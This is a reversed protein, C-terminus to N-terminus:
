VAVGCPPMFSEHGVLLNQLQAPLIMSPLELPIEDKAGYGWAAHIFSLGNQHAADYDGARDGVYCTSSKELMCDNLLQNIVQSKKKFEVSPYDITYTREFLGDWKLNSIIKKTPYLRKNTVIFINKNALKLDILLQQIGFYPKALNCVGGDYEFKFQEVLNDLKEDDLEKTLGKLADRLPPGILSREFKLATGYGNNKLALQFCELISTASDILTGDLDFIISSILSFNNQSPMCCRKLVQTVM